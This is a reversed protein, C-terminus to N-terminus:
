ERIALLIWRLIVYSIWTLGAAMLAAFLSGLFQGNDSYFLIFSFLGTAVAVVFGIPEIVKDRFM